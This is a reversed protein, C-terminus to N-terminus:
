RGAGRSVGLTTEDVIRMALNEISGVSTDLSHDAIGKYAADRQEMLPGAFARFEELGPGDTGSRSALPALMPRRAVEGYVRQWIVDWSATLLWCRGTACVINANAQRMPTGGGLAIVSHPSIVALRLARSESDRFSVEGETQFIEPITHRCISVIFEDLDIFGWGLRQAVERGVVTKGTGMFGALFVHRRTTELM